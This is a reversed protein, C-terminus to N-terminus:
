PRNGTHESPILVQSLHSIIIIVLIIKKSAHSTTPKRVPQFFPTGPPDSGALVWHHRVERWRHGSACKGHASASAYETRPRAGLTETWGLSAARLPSNELLRLADQTPRTLGPESEASSDGDPFEALEFKSTASCKAIGSPRGEDVRKAVATAAADASTTSQVGFPGAQRPVTSKSELLGLKMLLSHAHQRTPAPRAMCEPGLLGLKVLPCQSTLNQRPVTSKLELLGIKVLLSQLQQPPLM